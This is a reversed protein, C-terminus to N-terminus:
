FNCKKLLEYRKATIGYKHISLNRKMSLIEKKLEPSINFIDVYVFPKLKEIKNSHFEIVKQKNLKYFPNYGEIILNYSRNWYAYIYEKEIEYLKERDCKPSCIIFFIFNKEGFKDFDSQLFSNHHKKSKLEKLHEEKRKDFCYSSGIYIRNNKINLIGYIVM